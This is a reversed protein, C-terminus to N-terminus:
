KLDSIPIRTVKGKSGALYVFTGGPPYRAVHYSDKSLLKWTKGGDLTYDIGSTGCVLARNEDIQAVGSRYGAPPVTPASWTKGGDVSYALNGTRTTDSGFDGGAIILYRPQKRKPDPDYASLGNAGTSEKGQVLPIQVSQTGQFFRSKKGGSVLQYGGKPYALLNSASAAFFAEGSDLAPRQHKPLEQWHLGGDTTKLMFAHGDIPDGVVLGEKENWFHIADLFMGPRRDEYVVSWNRGGDATYLIQAPTDIAVVLARLGDFAWMSRLDRKEFNPVPTWRWSLGGDRTCGVRGRTGSVWVLNDTLAHMGRFSSKGDQYLPVPSQAFAANGVNLFWVPGAWCLLALVLFRIYM